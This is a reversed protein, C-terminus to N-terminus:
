RAGTDLGIRAVPEAGRWTGFLRDWWSLSEGYNSDTQAREDSHHVCHAVPTIIVWALRRSLGVPLKVNAHAFLNQGFLVTEAIIVADPAAGLLLVVAGAVLLAPLLEVPHNRLATSLDLAVDGHHLRHFRWLLAIRHSARHLWYNALSHAVYVLLVALPLPTDRLSFLGWGHRQAVIATAVAGIPSFSSITMNVLGVSFNVILRHDSSDQGSRAAWRLEALALLVFLGILLSLLATSSMLWTM